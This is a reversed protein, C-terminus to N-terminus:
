GDGFLDAAREVGVRPVPPSHAPETPTEDYQRRYIDMQEQRQKEAIARDEAHSAFALRKFEAELQAKNEEINLQRHRYELDAKTTDAATKRNREAEFALYAVFVLVTLLLEM